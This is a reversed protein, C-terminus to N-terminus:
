DDPDDAILDLLNETSSSTNGAIVTEKRKRWINLNKPLSVEGNPFTLNESWEDAFSQFEAITINPVKRLVAKTVKGSLKKSDETNDSLYGYRHVLVFLDGYIPPQKSKQQKEIIALCDACPTHNGDSGYSMIPKDCITKTPQNADRVLHAPSGDVPFVWRLKPPADPLKQLAPTELPTERQQPDVILTQPECGQGSSKEQLAIENPLTEAPSVKQAVKSPPEFVRVQFHTYLKKLEAGTEALLGSPVNGILVPNPDIQQLAANYLYWQEDKLTEIDSTSPEDSGNSLTNTDIKSNIDLTYIESRPAVKPVGLHLLQPDSTCSKRTQLSYFKEIRAKDSDDVEVSLFGHEVAKAIGSRISNETMGVGSDIRTGDRRKRGNEFEEVTIRKGEDFERYGWTHRLVYLVIKLEALSKFEPLAAILELPMETYNREPAASFGEFMQSPEM